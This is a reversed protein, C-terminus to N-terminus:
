KLIRTVNAAQGSMCINEGVEDGGPRAAQLGSARAQFSTRLRALTWSSENAKCAQAILTEQSKPWYTAAFYRPAIHRLSWGAEIL